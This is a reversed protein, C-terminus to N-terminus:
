HGKKDYPHAPQKPLLDGPRPGTVTSYGYDQGRRWYLLETQQRSKFSGQLSLLINAGTATLTGNQIIDRDVAMFSDGHCKYVGNCVFSPESSLPLPPKKPGIMKTEEKAQSNLDDERIEEEVRGQTLAPFNGVLNYIEAGNNTIKKTKQLVYPDGTTNILASYTILAARPAYIEPDIFTGPIYIFPSYLLRGKEITKQYFLLPAKGIEEETGFVLRELLETKTGEPSLEVVKQKALREAAQFSNFRLRRYDEAPSTSNGDLYSRCLSEMLLRPLVEIELVPDMLFQATNDPPLIKFHDGRQREVIVPPALTKALANGDKKADPFRPTFRYLSYPNKSENILSRHILFDKFPTIVTGTPANTRLAQVMLPSVSQGIIIQSGQPARVSVTRPQNKGELVLRIREVSNIDIGDSQSNRADFLNRGEEFNNTRYMFSSVKRRDCGGYGIFNKPFLPLLNKEKFKRLLASKSVGMGPETIIEDREKKIGKLNMQYGSTIINQQHLNERPVVTKSPAFSGINYFDTELLLDGGVEFYAPESIVNKHSFPNNYVSSGRGYTRYMGTLTDQLFTNTFPAGKIKAKGGVRIFSGENYSPQQNTLRLTRGVNLYGENKLYGRLTLDERTSFLSDGPIFHNFRFLHCGDYSAHSKGSSVGWINFGLNWSGENYKHCYVSTVNESNPDVRLRGILLGGPLALDSARCFLAGEKLDIQHFIAKFFSEINFEVLDRGDFPSKYDEPTTLLLTHGPLKAYAKGVNVSSKLHITGEPKPLVNLALGKVEQNTKSSSKKPSVELYWDGETEFGSIVTLDKGPKVYSVLKEGEFTFPTGLSGTAGMERTRMEMLPAKFFSDTLLLRPATLSVSTKSSFLSKILHLGCKSELFVGDRADFSLHSQANGFNRTRLTKKAKLDIKGRPTKLVSKEFSIEDAEGIINGTKSTMLVLQGPNEENKEAPPPHGGEILLNFSSSLEIDKQATIASTFLLTPKQEPVKFLDSFHIGSSSVINQFLGCQDPSDDGFRPSFSLGLSYHSIVELPGANLSDEQGLTTMSLSTSKGELSSHDLILQPASLSSWEGSGLCANVLEVGNDSYIWCGKQGFIQLTSTTADRRGRGKIAEGFSSLHVDGEASHIKAHDVLFVSGQSRLRRSRQSHLTIDVKREAEIVGQRCDVFGSKLSLADGSSLKGNEGKYSDVDLTMPGAAEIEGGQNKLAKGKVSLPGEITMWGENEFRNMDQTVVFPLVMRGKNVLSFLGSPSAQFPVYLTKGAQGGNRFTILPGVDGKSIKPSIIKGKNDWDVREGSFLVETPSYLFGELSPNQLGRLSNLFEESLGDNVPVLPSIFGFEMKEEWSASLRLSDQAKVSAEKSINFFHRDKDEKYYLEKGEYNQRFYRKVKLSIDKAILSPSGYMGFGSGEFHFKQSTVPNIVRLPENSTIDFSGEPAGGEWFIQGSNLVEFLPVSANAGRTLVFQISTGLSIYSLGFADAGSQFLTGEETLDYIRRKKDCFSFNSEFRRGQYLLSLSLKVPLGACGRFFECIDRNRDVNCQLSFEEQGEKLCLNEFPNKPDSAKPLTFSKEVRFNAKHENELVTGQGFDADDAEFTKENCFILDQSPDQNQCSFSVSNLIGKNVFRGPTGSLSFSKGGRLVGENVFLTEKGRTGPEVYFSLNNKADFRAEPALYFLDELSVDILPSSSFFVQTDPATLRYQSEGVLSPCQLVVKHANLQCRSVLTLALETRLLFDGQTEFSGLFCEGEPSLHIGGSRVRARESGKQSLFFGEETLSFDFFRELDGSTVLSGSKEFGEEPKKPNFSFFAEQLVGKSRTRVCLDIDMSRSFSFVSREVVDLSVFDDAEFAAQLDRSSFLTLVYSFLTILATFRKCFFPM